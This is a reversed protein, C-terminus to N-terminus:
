SYHDTYSVFVVFDFSFLCTRMTTLFKLMALKTMSLVNDFILVSGFIQAVTVVQDLQCKCSMVGLLLLFIVTRVHVHVM